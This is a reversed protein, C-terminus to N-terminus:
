RKTEEIKRFSTSLIPPNRRWLLTNPNRDSNSKEFNILNKILKIYIQFM